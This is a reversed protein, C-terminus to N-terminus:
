QEYERLQIAADLLLQDKEILDKQLARLESAVQRLHANMKIMADAKRPLSANGIAVQAFHEIQNLAKLFILDRDEIKMRM